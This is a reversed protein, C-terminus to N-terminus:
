ENDETEEDAPEEELSEEVPAEEEAEEKPETFDYDEEKKGFIRLIGLGIKAVARCIALFGTGVWAVFRTIFNNKLKGLTFLKYLIAIIAILLVLAILIWLWVVTATDEIGFTAFSIAGLIDASWGNFTVKDEGVNPAGTGQHETGNIINKDDYAVAEISYNIHLGDEVDFSYVLVYMDGDVSTNVLTCCDSISALRYGNTFRVEFTVVDGVMAGYQPRNNIYYVANGTPTYTVDIKVAADPMTFKGNKVTVKSGNVTVVTLAAKHFEKNIIEVTIENGFIADGTVTVETEDYTISYTCPTYVADLSTETTGAAIMEAIATAIDFTALEPCAVTHGKKAPIILEGLVDTEVTFTVSVLVEDEEPDVVNLTYEIPTYTMYVNMDITGLNDEDYGIWADFTYAAPLTYSGNLVFDNMSDMHAKIVADKDLAIAHKNYLDTKVLEYAGNVPAYYNVKFSKPMLSAKITVFEAPVVLKWTTDSLKTLKVTEGKANVYYLDVVNYNATIGSPTVIIEDGEQYFADSDFGSITANIVPAPNPLRTDAHTAGGDLITYENAFIWSAKLSDPCFELVKTGNALTVKKNTSMVYLELADGNKLIITRGRYANALWEFPVRVTLVDGSALEYAVGDRKIEIMFSFANNQNYEDATFSAIKKYAVTVDTPSGAFVNQVLAKNMVVPQYLTKGDADILRIIVRAEANAVAMYKGIGAPLHVTGMGGKLTIVYDYWVDGDETREEFFADIKDAITPNAVDIEYEEAYAAELVLPATVATNTDYAAGSFTWHSFVKEFLYCDFEPVVQNDPKIMNLYEDNTALKEGDKIWIQKYDANNVKFTVLYSAAFSAKFNTTGDISIADFDVVGGDKDLWADFAYRITDNSEPARSPTGIQTLMDSTIKEGNKVWLQGQLAGNYNYFSVKHYDAVHEAKGIFTMDSTIPIDNPLPNATGDYKKGSEDKWHTFAYEYRTEGFQKFYSDPTPIAEGITNGYRVVYEKKYRYEGDEKLGFLFTVTYTQTFETEITLYLPADTITFVGNVETKSADDYSNKAVTTRVIEYHEPSTITAIFPVAGVPLYTYNDDNVHVDDMFDLEGVITAGTNLSIFRHYVAYENALTYKSFHDVEFSITNNTHTTAILERNHPDDVCYVHTGQVGDIDDVPTFDDLSLEIKVPEAFTKDRGTMQSYPVYDEGILFELTYQVANEHTYYGSEFEAHPTLRFSVGGNGLSNLQEVTAGSVTIKIGTNDDDLVITAGENVLNQPLTVLASDYVGDGDEDKNSFVDDIAISYGDEVPTTVPGYVPDFYEKTGSTFVPVFALGEVVETTAFDVLTQQDDGLLAWGDQVWKWISEYGEDVPKNYVVSAVDSASLYTGLKKYFSQLVTTGDEAYFYVKTYDPNVTPDIEPYVSMDGTVTKVPVGGSLWGVLLVGEPQYDYASLKAGKPLFVTDLPKADMDHYTVRYINELQVTVDVNAVLTYDEPFFGKIIEVMEDADPGDGYFRRALKEALKQINLDGKTLTAANQFKGNGQYMEDLTKTLLDPALVNIKDIASLAYSKVLNFTKRYTAIDQNVIDELNEMLKAEDLVTSVDVGLKEDIISIVKHVFDKKSMEDIKEDLADLIEGTTLSSVDKGTAAAYEKLIGNVYGIQALKDMLADTNLAKLIIVLDDITLAKLFNKADMSADLLGVLRDKEAADLDTANIIEAYYNMAQEPVKVDLIVSLDPKIEYYVFKSLISNAKAAANKVTEIDGDLVFQLGFLKEANGGSLKEYKVDFDFSLLTNSELNAIDELTPIKSIIAALLANIDIMLRGSATDGQEKAVVYGDISFEDIAYPIKSLLLTQLAPMAAKVTETEWIVGIEEPSLQGVLLAALEADVAVVFKDMDVLDTVAKGEANIISLLKNVGIAEIALPLDVYQALNDKGIAAVVKDLNLCAVINALGETHIITELGIGDTALHHVDISEHFHELGEPTVYESIHLLLFDLNDHLYDEKEIYAYFRTEDINAEAADARFENFLFHDALEKMRNTTLIEARAADTLYLGPDSAVKAKVTDLETAIMAALGADDVGLATKLATANFDALEWDTKANIWQEIKAMGNDDFYADPDAQLMAILDANAPDNLIEDLHIYDVIHRGDAEAGAVFGNFDIDDDEFASMDYAGTVPDKKWYSLFMDLDDDDEIYNEIAIHFVNDNFLSEGTSWFGAHALDDIYIPCNDPINDGNKDEGDVALLENLLGALGASDGEYHSLLINLADNKKIIEELMEREHLNEIIAGFDFFVDIGDAKGDNDADRQELEELLAALGINNLIAEASVIELIEEVTIVELLAAIDINIGELITEVLPSEKEGKLLEVLKDSSVKVVIAPITSEPDNPSTQTGSGVDLWPDAAFASLPLVAFSMILALVMALVRHFIKM